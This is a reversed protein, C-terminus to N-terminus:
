TTIENSCLMEVLNSQRGFLRARVLDGDKDSLLLIGDAELRAQIPIDLWLSIVYVNFIRQEMDDAAIRNISLSECETCLHILMLEGWGSGYKKSTTKVTLGIPKMLAKCASLRDGAERWDMHRSWLCCPCHNRNKVGSPFSASTIYTNCHKCLFGDESLCRAPNTSRERHSCARSRHREPIPSIFRANM